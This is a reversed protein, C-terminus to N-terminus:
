KPLILTGTWIHDTSTAGVYSDSLLEGSAGEFRGTGGNIYIIDQFEFSYGPKETPKVQGEPISVFIRDGNEAEMYGEGDTYKGFGGAFDPAGNEDFIAHICFTLDTTFNGLETATGSGVQHERGWFDTESVPPQCTEAFSNEGAETYFEAEFPIEVSTPGEDDCAFSLPVIAMLVIFSFKLNKM